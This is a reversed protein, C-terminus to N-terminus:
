APKDLPQILPFDDMKLLMQIKPDKIGVKMMQNFDTNSMDKCYRCRFIIFARTSSEFSDRPPLEVGQKDTYSGKSLENYDIYIKVLKISHTSGFKVLRSQLQDKYYAEDRLVTEKISEESSQIAFPLKIIEDLIIRADFHNAHNYLIDTTYKSLIIMSKEKSVKGMKLQKMMDFISEFFDNLEQVDIFEIADGLYDLFMLFQKQGEPSLYEEIYGIFQKKLYAVYKDPHQLEPNLSALRVGSVVGLSGLGLLVEGTAIGIDYYFHEFNEQDTKVMFDSLFDVVQAHASKISDLPHDTFQEVAQRARTFIIEAVAKPNQRIKAALVGIKIGNKDCAQVLGDVFPRLDLDIGYTEDLSIVVEEIAKYLKQKEKALDFRDFDSDHDGDSESAIGDQLDKDDEVDGGATYTDFQTM